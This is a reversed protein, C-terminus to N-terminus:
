AHCALSINKFDRPHRPVLVLLLTPYMKILKDHVQLIVEYEGKHISAAMCIPRNRFKQQLDEIATVEEKGADIDGVSHAYWIKFNLDGAFHIIQPPPYFLQFCVAQISCLPIVLSLRSLMLSVLQLGIPLSWCNFSKLSIHANLLAVAIGKEAAFLILNPWLESEMLLTLNPKWYRIFSILVTSPHLSCVCVETISFQYMVGDPLLDKIVEFSSLTATALLIPRSPHLRASHRVIGEGLSVSQFWGLPSDPRPREISPRGLREAAAGSAARYLEYLARGGRVAPAPTRATRM